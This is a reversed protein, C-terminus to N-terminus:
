VGVYRKYLATHVRNVVRLVADPNQTGPVGGEEIFANRLIMGWNGTSRLKPDIIYQEITEAQQGSPPVLMRQISVYVDDIDRPLIQHTIDILHKHMYIRKLDYFEDLSMERGDPTKITSDTGQRDSQEHLFQYNATDLPGLIAWLERDEYMPELNCGHKRFYNEIIAQSFEFDTLVAAQRSASLNVPMGTSELTCIRKRSGLDPRLRGIPNHMVSIRDGLGDECLLGRAVANVKESKLLHAYDGLGKDSLHPTVPIDMYRGTVTTGRLYERTCILEEDCTGNVFPGGKLFASNAIASASRLMTYFALLGLAESRGALDLHIHCGQLRFVQVFNSEPTINYRQKADALKQGYEPFKENVSIMLDAATEVKPDDTLTFDTKIPYSSMIATALGTVNSSAMLASIIGDLSRRTQHYGVGPAVHAEVQFQCAERDIQPTIGIRRANNQYTHIFTQMEDENPPTGDKHLLGLEIEAGLARMKTSTAETEHINSHNVSPNLNYGVISQALTKGSRYRGSVTSGLIYQHGEVEAIFINAHEDPVDPFYRTVPTDLVESLHELSIPENSKRAAYSKIEQNFLRKQNEVQQWPVHDSFDILRENSPLPM